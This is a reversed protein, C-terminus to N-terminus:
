LSGVYEVFEDSVLTEPSNFLVRGGNQLELEYKNVFFLGFFKPIKKIQGLAVQNISPLFWVDTREM